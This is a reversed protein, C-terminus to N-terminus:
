GVLDLPEFGTPITHDVGNVAPQDTHLRDLISAVMRENPAIARTDTM